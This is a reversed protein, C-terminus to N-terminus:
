LTGSVSFPRRGQADPAGLMQMSQSLNAPANARAAVLTDLVYSRDPSLKLTGTVDLAAGDLDELSGVLENGAANAAPFQLRYAGINNPGSAPGTLDIIDMSGRAAIPWNNKFILESFKLQAKGVWGGPLGGSGVISQLPLSASVNSLTLKGSLGISVGAEAYGDAPSLKVEAALRATFLPLLRVKLVGVQLGTVQGHWLSGQASSTQIGHQALRNSLLSAPLSILMFLSYAAVGAWLWKNRWLNM